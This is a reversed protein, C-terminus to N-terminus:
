RAEKGITLVALTNPEVHTSIVPGLSLTVVNKIKKNALLQKKVNEAAESDNADDVVDTDQAGEDTAQKLM